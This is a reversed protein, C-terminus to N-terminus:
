ENNIKSIQKIEKKDKKSTWFLFFFPGKKKPMESQMPVAQLVEGFVAKSNELEM